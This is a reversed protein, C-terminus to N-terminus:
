SKFLEPTVPPANSKPISQDQSDWNADFFFHLLIKLFKVFAKMNHKINSHFAIGHESTGKLYCLVRKAADICGKIPHAMYRSLINSIKAIDPQTSIALWNISGILFQM